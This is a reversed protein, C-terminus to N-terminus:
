LQEASPDQVFSRYVPRIDECKSCVVKGTEMRHDYHQEKNKQTKLSQVKMLQAIVAETDMGSVLGSLRMAM